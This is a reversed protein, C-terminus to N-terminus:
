YDRLTDRTFKRAPATHEPTGATTVSTNDAALGLRMKGTGVQTLFQVADEYRAAVTDTPHDEYLYYRALDCAFRNLIKPPSVFPLAYRGDLYGNVTDDADALAKAMVSADIVGIGARDTLQVLEEEGFRDIMDQQTAYPM